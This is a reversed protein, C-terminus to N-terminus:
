KRLLGDKGILWAAVLRHAPDYEDFPVGFVETFDAFLVSIEAVKQQVADLVPEAKLEEKLEELAEMVTEESAKKKAM